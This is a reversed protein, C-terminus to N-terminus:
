HQSNLHENFFDTAKRAADQHIATRDVGPMDDCVQPMTEKGHDNCIGLFTYHGVGGPYLTLQANPIHDAFYRANSAIPVVPDTAGAVIEVPVSIKEM